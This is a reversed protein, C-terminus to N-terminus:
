QASAVESTAGAAAAVVATSASAVCASVRGEVDGGVARVVYGYGKGDDILNDVLTLAGGAAASQHAVLRYGKATTEANCGGEIRYLQYGAANAVAGFQVTVSPAPLAVRNAVRVATPAALQAKGQAPGFAGSAVLAYGQRDSGALDAGAGPVYTGKVRLKYRGAVPATLRIQEVNNLVDADNPGAQLCRQTTNRMQNYRERTCFEKSVGKVLSNGRYVRGDPGEVELDLDNVLAVAAGATTPPDMWTLTVRLEEGARLAALEYEHQEDTRLGNANDREFLRLRRNDNGGLTTRQFWLNSDLWPRGWGGGLIPWDAGGKNIPSSANAPDKVPRTGNLLVAKLAASSPALRDAVTRQGSPYFGDTFYQRTLAAVASIAPAAMSTGTMAKTKPTYGAQAVGSSNLCLGLFFPSDCTASVVDTGPAAIDPKFRGDPTGRSSYSDIETSSGHKTAAVSLINKALSIDGISNWCRGGRLEQDCAFRPDGNDGFNGAAHVVLLDNRYTSIDAARAYVGYGNRFVGWSNNHVRAGAAYAQDLVKQHPFRGENADGEKFSSAQFLLQAHPANGDASDHEPQGLFSASYLSEGYEGSLDGAIIGSVHTGHESALASGMFEPVSPAWVGILKNAPSLPGIALPQNDGAPAIVSYPTIAAAPDGGDAGRLYTFWAEDNDIPSDMVGVIQGSGVIGQDWIPTAGTVRGEGPEATGARPAYNSQLVPITATNLLQPGAHRSIQQVSDIQGLASLAEALLAGPVELRVSPAEADNFVQLLKAGPLRSQIAQAATRANEHDFLSAVLSTKDFKVAAGGQVQRLLDPALKMDSRYGGAWRVGQLKRLAGIGGSETRVLYANNPVYGLIEAGSNQLVARQDSAGEQFQVIAYRDSVAVGANSVNQRPDAPDFLGSQLILKRKDRVAAAIASQSAPVVGAAPTVSALWQKRARQAVSDNGPDAANGVSAVAGAATSGGADHALNSYVFTGLAAAVATAIGGRVLKRKNNM